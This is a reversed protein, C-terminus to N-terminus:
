VRIRRKKSGKVDAEQGTTEPKPVPVGTPLANYMSWFQPWLATLEGPNEIAIGRRKFAILALAMIFYPGPAAWSDEWTLRSPRITVYSGNLEFDAQLRELMEVGLLTVSPDDAVRVEVEKGAALGLALGLPYFEEYQGLEIRKGEPIRWGDVGVGGQTVNMQFGMEKLENMLFSARPGYGPMAGELRVKGFNFAPLVMLYSSLVPDMYLEPNEAVEPTGSEIICEGKELRASIGCLNLAFVAIRLRDQLEDNQPFCITLGNEYTCASLALAVAFDAPTDPDLTITSAMRGGCELRVPLGPSHPNLSSLRAGLSALLKNLPKVNLLKLDTGGVFKCRGAGRLALAVLMYFNLHNEGVFIVKGEFDIGNDPFGSAPTNVIADDTWSLHGGAQNLSKILEICPDNLVVGSLTTDCNGMAALMSLMRTVRLSRPGKVAVALPDSKPALLYSRGTQRSKKKSAQALLNTHVFLQRLLKPDLTNERGSGEWARWLEKEVDPEVLNHAKDGGRALGRLKEGRKAILQLIKRDLDILDAMKDERSSYRRDNTGFSKFEAM